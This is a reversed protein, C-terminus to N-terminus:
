FRIFRFFIWRPLVCVLLFLLRWTSWSTVKLKMTMRLLWAPPLLLFSNRSRFVKHFLLLNMATPFDHRSTMDSIDYSSMNDHIVGHWWLIENKLYHKFEHKIWNEMIVSWTFTYISIEMKRLFHRWKSVDHRWSAFDYSTLVLVM